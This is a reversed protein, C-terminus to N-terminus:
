VRESGLSLSYSGLESEVSRSALSFWGQVNKDPWFGLSFARVGGGMAGVRRRSHGGTM